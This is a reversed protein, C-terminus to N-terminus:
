VKQRLAGVAPHAVPERQEVLHEGETLPGDGGLAHPFDEAEDRIIQITREEAEHGFPVGDPESATWVRAHMAELAASMRELNEKSWEPVVDVDTTLYPSGHIVAAFGGVLVFRVGHEKLVALLREPALEPEAM